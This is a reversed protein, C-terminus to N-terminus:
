LKRYYRDFVEIIQQRLEGLPPSIKEIEDLLANARETPNQNSSCINSWTEHDLFALFFQEPPTRIQKSIEIDARLHSPVMAGIARRLEEQKTRVAAQDAAHIDDLREFVWNYFNAVKEAYGSAIDLLNIQAPAGDLYERAKVSWDFGEELEAKNLFMSNDIDAGPSWSMSSSVDPIEKHVFYNRLGQVFQCLPDEAFRSKAEAEYDSFRGDDKYNSRYFRYAHDRLSFSAAVFNHLLRGVEGLISDLIPRNELSWLNAAVPGTRISELLGTLENANQQFLQVSYSFQRIEALREWEPMAVLEKQIGIPDM